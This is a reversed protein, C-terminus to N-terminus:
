VRDVAVEHSKQNTAAYILWMVGVSLTYMETALIKPNIPRILGIITAKKRIKLSVPRRFSKSLLNKLKLVTFGTYRKSVPKRISALM